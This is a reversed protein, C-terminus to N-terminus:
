NEKKLEEILRKVNVFTLECQSIKKKSEKGAYFVIFARRPKYLEIFSLLGKGITDDTSLKVELPIIKQNLELVFDVEAQGKTRWYKPLFGSKILECLVYNEFLKGDLEPPFQNAIINRLGTDIFYVKPQKSIEKNKNQYFPIIRTILYSKEMADLYKKLTAFSITLVKAASEYSFIAGNNLALYRACGELTRSDEISFTKAIDKLIMTEFLDRLITKKLEIDATLVVKPYGGYLAHEWIDRQLITPTVEKRDQAMLYESLSFPYLKVVSVRGVLYSLIDKGLLIESSSTLWLTKGQEFLYKLKIGADKGYQVEDLIAVGVGELYQREFKKVDADFLNRVDPDDFLLYASKRTKAQEKLFTTKGAQRAGVVAILTYSQQLKQFSPAITRPIYM